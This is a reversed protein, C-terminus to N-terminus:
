DEKAEIQPPKGYDDMDVLSAGYIVTLFTIVLFIITAVESLTPPRYHRNHM